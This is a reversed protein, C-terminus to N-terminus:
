CCVAFRLFLFRPSPHNCGYVYVYVYCVYMCVYVCMCVFMCVYICWLYKVYRAKSDFESQFTYRLIRKNGKSVIHLYTLTLSYTSLHSSTLSYDLTLSYTLLYTLLHTLSHTFDKVLESYSKLAIMVVTIYLKSYKKIVNPSQEALCVCTFVYMCM